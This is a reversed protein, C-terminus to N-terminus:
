YCGHGNPFGHYVGRLGRFLPFVRPTLFGPVGEVAGSETDMTEHSDFLAVNVGCPVIAVPIGETHNDRGIQAFNHAENRPISESHIKLM